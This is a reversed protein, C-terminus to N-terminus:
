AVEGAAREGSEIAGQMWAPVLSTHEGAFHLRGVPTAAYQAISTLEGPGYWPYAGRSWPDEDWCYVAWKNEYAARFGPSLAEVEDLLREIRETKDLAQLARAYRGCVYVELLGKGTGPHRTEAAFLLMPLRDTFTIDKLAWVPASTQLYARFVSTHQQLDIAREKERPMDPLKLTRLVSFPIACIMEDGEFREAKAGREARITAAIGSGTEEIAVVPKSLQVRAGLKAALAKPLQDCGGPFYRLHAGSPPFLAEERLWQLASGTDFGDGLLDHRRLRLVEVAGRSAGSDRLLQTLTVHDYAAIKKKKLWGDDRPDGLKKLEEAVAGFYKKWMKGTGLKREDKRVPLPWRNGNAGDGIRHGRLHLEAGNVKVDEHKVGLHDAYVFPLPMEPPLVLAGAEGQLPPDISCDPDGHRMTLIKGGVRDRAELVTVDHGVTMLQYAATLGALGAGLVIVHKENKSRREVFEIDIM